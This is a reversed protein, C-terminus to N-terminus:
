TLLRKAVEEFDVFSTTGVYYGPDCWLDTTAADMATDLADDIQTGGGFADGFAGLADSLNGLIAFNLQAAAPEAAAAPKTACFRRATRAAAATRSVVATRLLASSRLQATSRAAHRALM